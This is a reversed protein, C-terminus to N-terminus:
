FKVKSLILNIQNIFFINIYLRNYDKRLPNKISSVSYLFVQMQHHHWIRISLYANPNTFLLIASQSYIFEYALFFNSFYFNVIYIIPTLKLPWLFLPDEYIPNINFSYNPHLHKLLYMYIPHSHISILREWTPSSSLFSSSIPQFISQIM